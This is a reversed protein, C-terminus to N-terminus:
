EKSNLVQKYTHITKELGWELSQSILRHGISVEQLGPLNKFISLNEHDLDHGANIELGLKIAEKATYEFRSFVAQADRKSKDYSIAFPGTYLEIRNAGLEKAIKLDQVGAEVFLSVRIGAERIQRIIPELNKADRDMQFGQDSTIEGPTVPVLTAQEPKATLIIDLFRTSPEGEINFEHLVKSKENYRHIRHKLPLIDSNRIHREDERPHITIGDAGYNLIKESLDLLSPIEGGRSNRLTAIKNVNVSLLIM